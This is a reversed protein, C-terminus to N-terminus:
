LKQFLVRFLTRHFEAIAVGEIIFATETDLDIIAIKDRYVLEIVNQDFPYESAPIFKVDMSFPVKRGKWVNEAAIVFRDVGKKERLKRLWSPFYSQARVIDRESSVRIFTEDKKAGLILDEFIAEIGARGEYTTVRPKLDEARYASSLVPMKLKIQTLLSAFIDYLKEPPVALYVIRKGKKTPTILKRQKLEGLTQYVRTRHIGTKRAIEIVSLSGSTYLTEYIVQSIGKVGLNELIIQLENM